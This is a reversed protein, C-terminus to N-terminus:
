RTRSCTVLHQCRRSFEREMSHELMFRVGARRRPALQEPHMALEAVLRAMTDIDNMRCTWGLGRRALPTATGNAFSAFPVGCAAAELYTGAPDSQRHPLVILDVHRQFYPLWETHFDLSGHDVIGPMDLDVEGRMPGDGFLHLSIPRSSLERAKRFAAIAADFGKPRLWRGSFAINFAAGEEHLADTVMTHPVRSDFYLLSRSNLRHYSKWGPFGNCQLGAARHFTRRLGPEKKAEGIAIRSASFRSEATLAGWRVRNTLPNEVNVVIPIDGVHALIERDALAMSSLVVDSSLDRLTKVRDKTPIFEYPLTALERHDQGDAYHIDDHVTAVLATEGPWHKAFEETGILTKSPAWIRGAAITVSHPLTIALRM